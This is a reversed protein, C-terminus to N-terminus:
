ARQGWNQDLDIPWGNESRARIVVGSESHANKFVKEVKARGVRNIPRESKDYNPCVVEDGIKFKPEAM